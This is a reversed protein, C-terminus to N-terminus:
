KNFQNITKFRYFQSHEYTTDVTKIEQLTVWPNNRNGKIKPIHFDCALECGTGVLYLTDGSNSFILHLIILVAGKKGTDDFSIFMDGPQVQSNEILDCSNALSRYNSNEMCFQLFRYYETETAEKQNSPKFFLNGRSDYAPKHSLWKEFTMLEGAKPEIAISNHYSNQLCFEGLMRVPIAFDRFSPGIWPLHIARSIEEAKFKQQGKWNGVGKLKYWLPFLSVWDSYNSKNSIQPHQYGDPLEFEGEITFVTDPISYFNYNMKYFEYLKEFEETREANSLFPISFIIIVTTVIIKRKIIKM